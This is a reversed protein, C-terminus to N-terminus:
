NNQEPKKLIAFFGLAFGAIVVIPALVIKTFSYIDTDGSMLIFGLVVIAISVLMLIYNMRGFVFNIQKPNNDQSNRQAM